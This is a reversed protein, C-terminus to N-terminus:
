GITIELTQLCIGVFISEMCLIRPLLKSDNDVTGNFAKISKSDNYDKYLYM